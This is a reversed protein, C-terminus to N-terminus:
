WGGGPDRTSERNKGAIITWEVVDEESHVHEATRVDFHPPVFVGPGPIRDTRLAASKANFHM